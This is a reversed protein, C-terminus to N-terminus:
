PQRGVAAGLWWAVSEYVMAPMTDAMGFAKVAMSLHDAAKGAQQKRLEGGASLRGKAACEAAFLVHYLGALTLGLGRRDEEPTQDILRKEDGRQRKRLPGVIAPVSALQGASGEFWRGWADFLGLMVRRDWPANRGDPVAWDAGGAARWRRVSAAQNGCVGVAATTLTQTIQLISGENAALPSQRRRRYLGSCADRFRAPRDVDEGDVCLSLVLAELEATTDDSLPIAARASM